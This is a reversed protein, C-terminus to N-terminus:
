RSPQYNGFSIPPPDDYPDNKDTYPETVLTLVADEGEGVEVGGSVAGVGGVSVGVGSGVIVGVGVGVEVGGGEM